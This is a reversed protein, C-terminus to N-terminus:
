NIKKLLPETESSNSPTSNNNNCYDNLVSPVLVDEKQQSDNLESPALVDYKQQCDNPEPPVADDKQQFYVISQYIPQQKTSSM